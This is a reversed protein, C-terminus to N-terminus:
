AEGRKRVELLERDVDHLDVAAENAPELVIGAVRRDDVGDGPEAAAEALGDNGLPDLSRVLMGQQLREAAVLALAIIVSARRRRPFHRRQACPAERRFRRPPALLTSRTGGRGELSLPSGWFCLHGSM